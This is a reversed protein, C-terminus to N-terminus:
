EASYNRQALVSGKKQSSERSTRRREEVAKWAGEFEIIRVWVEATPVVPFCERDVVVDCILM